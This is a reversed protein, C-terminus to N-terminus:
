SLGMIADEGLGYKRSPDDDGNKWRDLHDEGPDTRASLTSEGSKKDLSSSKSGRREKAKGGSFWSKRKNSSKTTTSDATEGPEVTGDHGTNPAPNLSLSSASKKHGPGKKPTTLNTKNNNKNKADTEAESFGNPDNPTASPTVEMSSTVEVLEADRFWKRRRTYKGWSDADRKGDNWKNDYYIWGGGDGSEAHGTDSKGKSSRKESVSTPAGGEIKWTSGKVWRWRASGSEVSPLEFTNMKPASNLHEDTWSAREYALM